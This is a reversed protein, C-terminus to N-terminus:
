ESPLDKDITRRGTFIEQLSGGVHKFGNGINRGARIFSRHIKLETSDSDSDAQDALSVNDSSDSSDTEVYDSQTADESANSRGGIISGNDASIRLTQVISGSGDLLQVRWFPARTAADSQLLYNATAFSIKRRVAEREAVTFAGDSDLQLRDLNVRESNGLPNKLPARQSVIEGGRMEVERYGGRSSSDEFILRWSGPQSNGDLGELNLLNDLYAQGKAKGVANLATYATDQGHASLTLALVALFSLFKM